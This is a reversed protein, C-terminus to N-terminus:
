NQFLFRSRVELERFVCGNSPGFTFNLVITVNDVYANVMPQEPPLAPAQFMASLALSGGFEDAQLRRPSVSSEARLDSRM